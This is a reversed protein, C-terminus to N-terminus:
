FLAVVVLFNTILYTYNEIINFADRYNDLRKKIKM